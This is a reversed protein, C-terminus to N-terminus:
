FGGKVQLGGVAVFGIVRKRMVYNVSKRITGRRRNSEPFAGTRSVEIMFDDRSLPTMGRLVPTYGWSFVQRAQVAPRGYEVIAAHGARSGAEMRTQYQNTGVRVKAYLGAVYTGTVGGRHFANRRDNVPAIVRARRMVDNAIDQRMWRNVVGVGPGHLPQFCTAGTIDSRVM